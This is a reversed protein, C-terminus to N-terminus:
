CKNSTENKTDNSIKESDKNYKWSQIVAGLGLVITIILSIISLVNNM